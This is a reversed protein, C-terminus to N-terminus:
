LFSTISDLNAGSYTNLSDNLDYFTYKLITKKNEDTAVLMLSNRYLMKKAFLDQSSNIINLKQYDFMLMYYLKNKNEDSM